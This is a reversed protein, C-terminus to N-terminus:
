LPGTASVRPSANGTEAARCPHDVWLPTHDAGAPPLRRFTLPVGVCCVVSLVAAGAVSLAASGAAPRAPPGSSLLASRRVRTVTSTASAALRTIAAALATPPTMAAEGASSDSAACETASLRM